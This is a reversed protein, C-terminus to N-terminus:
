SFAEEFETGGHMPTTFADIGRHYWEVVIEDASGASVACSHPDDRDPRDPRATRNAARGAGAEVSTSSFLHHAFQFNRGESGIESCLLLQAGTRDRCVVGRQSRAQVLPLGEHFLASKAAMKEQLAAEIAQAKAAVQLDPSGQEAPTGEPVGGALRDASGGQVLLASRGGRRDRARLERAVRALLALQEGRELAGPLIQPVPFGTMMTRTNRFM